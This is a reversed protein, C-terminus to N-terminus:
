GEYGKGLKKELLSMFYTIMCVMSFYMAATTLLPVLPEYTQSRIIDGARSLDVIGIFGAVSTEKILQIMENCLTPIINRLAQPLIIKKMTTIESLGLSRGAEFQGRDISAIGARIIESVYAGSNIGFGIMAIFIKEVNVSGFILYYIIFMQVVVPTGRIGSVYINSLIELMKTLFNKRGLMKIVSVAIGIGVGVALAVVTIQLTVALGGLIEKYRNKYFLNNYIQGWLSTHKSEAQSINHKDVINQITGDSKLDGIIVNIYELFEEDALPVAIRYDEEYLAADLLQLGTNKQILNKAPYDDIVVADARGNVLELAAEVGNKARIVECDFLNNTCYTDGTTGLHVAIKINQLDSLSSIKGNHRVIVVQRSRFYPDSFIMNQAKEETYSMAAIVFDCTNQRIEFSLADFSVDNIKIGVGIKEAIKRAIDM